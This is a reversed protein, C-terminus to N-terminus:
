FGKPLGKFCEFQSGKPATYGSTTLNLLAYCDNQAPPANKNFTIGPALGGLKENKIQWLGEFLLDRTIPGSRAKQFVNAIAKEFLKGSTWQSITNQDISSGAAFRDYAAKFAKGGITDRGPVARQGYRPFRGAQPLEPRAGGGRVGLPRVDGVVACLRALSV